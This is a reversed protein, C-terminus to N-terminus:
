DAPQDGTPNRTALKVGKKVGLLKDRGLQTAQAMVEGDAGAPLGSMSLRLPM